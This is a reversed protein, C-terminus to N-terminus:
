QNTGCALALLADYPRGRARMHVCWNHNHIGTRCEPRLSREFLRPAAASTLLRSASGSAEPEFGTAAKKRTPTSKQEHGRKPESPVIKRLISTSSPM